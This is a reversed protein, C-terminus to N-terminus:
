AARLRALRQWIEPDRHRGAGDSCDWEPPRGEVNDRFDGTSSDWGRKTNDVESNRWKREM